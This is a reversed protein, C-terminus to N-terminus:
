EGDFAFQFTSGPTESFTMTSNTLNAAIGGQIYRWNGSYAQALQPSQDDYIIVAQSM